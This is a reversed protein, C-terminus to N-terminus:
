VNKIHKTTKFVKKRQHMLTYQIFMINVYNNLLQLM